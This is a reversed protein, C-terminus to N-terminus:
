SVPSEILRGHAALNDPKLEVIVLYGKTVHSVHLLVHVLLEKLKIMNTVSMLFTARASQGALKSWVWIHDFNPGAPWLLWAKWMLAVSAPQLMCKAAADIPGHLQSPLECAHSLKM